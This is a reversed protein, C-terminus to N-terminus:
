YTPTTSISITEDATTLMPREAVWATPDHAAGRGHTPRSRRNTRKARKTSPGCCPGGLLALNVSSLSAMRFTPYDGTKGPVFESDDSYTCSTLCFSGLCLGLGWSVGTRLPGHTPPSRRNTRKARKTSPGRLLGDSLALILSSLSAIRFANPYDRTKGPVFESDVPYTCTTLCYSSLGLTPHEATWATPDHSASRGM